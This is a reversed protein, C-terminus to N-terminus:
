RVASQGVANMEISELVFGFYISNVLCLRNKFESKRPCQRCIDISHHWRVGRHSASERKYWSASHNMTREHGARKINYTVIWRCHM